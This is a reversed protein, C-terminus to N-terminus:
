SATAPARGRGAQGTRVASPHGALHACLEARLAAPGDAVVALRHTMADRGTQLTYALDGAPVDQDALHDALREATHRLAEPTRASLVFLQEAAATDKAGTDPMPPEELVIHANAGGFGFSSVGARRPLGNGAGDRPEPWPRATTAIEFPGGDLELYPNQERLHLGAPITGHRLALVAKFLGAIGAAAELHGINTKVSGIVCGPTAATGREARLRRFATSLGTTEIPDGLATGTGHTEIYGVTQPAVDAARYAEVLLDAQADPNPATLSTTRGGHNATAAKIVAHVGDGDHDARDAQKLLVVGVGEGRVYGDARSDFTKCRGDSSLMEGQDLVDYVRPSLILNVGGAIALDCTGDRLAAVAQHVATLSGSCATDVAM